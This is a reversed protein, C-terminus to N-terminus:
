REAQARDIRHQIHYAYRRAREEPYDKMNIVLHYPFTKRKLTLSPHHRRGTQGAKVSKISSYSVRFRFGFLHTCHMADSHLETQRLYGIIERLLISGVAVWPIALGILMLHGAQFTEHRSEILFKVMLGSLGFFALVLISQAIVNPLHYSKVSRATHILYTEPMKM